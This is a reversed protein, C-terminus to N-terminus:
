LLSENKNEDGIYKTFINCLSGYKVKDIVNDQLYKRYLKNFYKITQQDKENQRKYKNYKNIIVEYLVKNGVSLARASAASIPIM